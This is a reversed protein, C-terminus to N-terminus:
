RACWFQLMGRFTDPYASELRDWALPDTEAGADPFM